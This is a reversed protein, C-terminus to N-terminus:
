RTRRLFPALAPQDKLRNQLEDSMVIQYDPLLSEAAARLGRTEVTLWDARVQSEVEEFPPLREPERDAVRILHAGFRSNVPGQWRGVPASIAAKALGEGFLHALEMESKGAVRRPWVSKDGMEYIGVPDPRAMLASRAQAIDGALDRHRQPDFFIQDFTVRTPRVFRHRYTDYWRLLEARSPDSGPSTPRALATMKEILRRRVVLDGRDLDLARARRFLVEEGIFTQVLDGLEGPSPERKWVARFSARMAELDATGVTVTRSVDRPAPGTEEGCPQAPLRAQGRHLAGWLAFLLAGMAAFHVLPERLVRM